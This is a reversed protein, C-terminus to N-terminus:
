LLEGTSPLRVLVTSGEEFTSARFPAAERERGEDSRMTDSMGGRRRYCPSAGEVSDMWRSLTDVVRRVKGEAGRRSGEKALSSDVERQSEAAQCHPM